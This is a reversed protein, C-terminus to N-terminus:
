GALAPAPDHWVDELKRAQFAQAEDLRATRIHGLKGCDPCQIPKSAAELEYHCHDCVFVMREVEKTYDLTQPVAM